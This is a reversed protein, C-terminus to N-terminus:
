SESGFPFTGVLGKLKEVDCLVEVSHAGHEDFEADSHREQTDGCAAFGKLPRQPDEHTKCENGSKHEINSNRINTRETSAVERRVYRQCGRLGAWGHRIPLTRLRM